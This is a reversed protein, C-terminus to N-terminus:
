MPSCTRSIQGAAHMLSPPLVACTGHQGWSCAGGHPVLVSPAPADPEADTPHQGARVSQMRAHVTVLSHEAMQASVTWQMCTRSNSSTRMVSIHLAPHTYAARAHGRTLAHSSCCRSWCVLILHFLQFMCKCCIHIVVAVYLLMWIFCRRYIQFLHFMQFVVHHIAVAIYAVDLHFLQFIQFVCKCCVHIAVAIYAIDLHLVQLMRKFVALVNSVHVQLVHTYGNCFFTIGSRNKCCGSSVYAVCVQFAHFMCNDCTNM